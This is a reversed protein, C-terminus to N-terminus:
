RVVVQEGLMLDWIHRSDSQVLLMVPNIFYHIVLCTILVEMTLNPKLFIVISQLITPLWLRLLLRGVGVPEGSEMDVVHFGFIVHGLHAQSRTFGVVSTVFLMFFFISFPVVSAMVISAVAAQADQVSTTGADINEIIGQLKTVNGWGAVAILCFSIIATVSSAVTVAFVRSCGAVKRGQEDTECSAATLEQVASFLSDSAALVNNYRKVAIELAGVNAWASSTGRCSEVVAIFEEFDMIGDDNADAEELLESIEFATLNGFGLLSAHDELEQVDIGGSADEDIEDFILRLEARIQKATKKKKSPTKSRKKKGFAREYAKRESRTVTGDDNLDMPDSVDKNSSKAESRTTRGDRNKDVSSAYNVKNKKAM